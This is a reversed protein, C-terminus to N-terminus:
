QYRKFKKQFRETQYEKLNKDQQLTHMRQKM